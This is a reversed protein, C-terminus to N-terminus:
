KASHISRGAEMLPVNAETPVYIIQNASSDLAQLWLYTLYESRGALSEAIIANAEAAGRARLIESQRAAEAEEILIQRSWEAERLKAKGSMGQQWVRWAPVGWCLTAVIALIVVLALFAAITNALRDTM